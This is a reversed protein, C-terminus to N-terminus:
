NYDKFRRCGTVWFKYSASLSFFFMFTTLSFFFLNKISWCIFLIACQFKTLLPKLWWDVSPLITNVSCNVWLFLKSYLDFANKLMFSFIPMDCVDSVNYGILPSWFDTRVTEWVWFPISYFANADWQSSGKLIMIPFPRVSKLVKKWMMWHGKREKPTHPPLLGLLMNLIHLSESLFSIHTYSFTLSRVSKFYVCLWVPKYYLLQICLNLSDIATLIVDTVTLCIHCHSLQSLSLATVTPYRAIGIIYTVPTCIHRYSM